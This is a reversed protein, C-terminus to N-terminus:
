FSGASGFIIQGSALRAGNAFERGTVRKKGQTQVELVELVTQGGCQILIGKEMLGLYTGPKADAEGQAETLASRWIHLRQENWDTYAAPWPNLGRIQNHVERASRHWLIPAMEKTIRPAWTVQSEDQPVPQITGDKLQDLTKALLAAGMPALQIALDGASMNEGVSAESKLLIPGADLKEVMLMTTVGSITDGNLITWAIPAAGRYKPLISGHVNVAAVRASQLLWGPLIQGYAVVVVFDVAMEQFLPRNEDLRIKPPQYVPIGREVACVKVPPAQLRHGRGSPRDPQTVVGVVEHGSDILMQLSPVAFEPTGLFVVRM